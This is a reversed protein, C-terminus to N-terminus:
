RGFAIANVNGDEKPSPFPHNQLPLFVFHFATPFELLFTQMALWGAQRADM